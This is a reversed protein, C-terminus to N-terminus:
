GKQKHFFSMDKVREKQFFHLFILRGIRVKSAWDGPNGRKDPQNAQGVRCSLVSGRKKKLFKKKMLIREGERNIEKKKEKKKKHHLCNSQASASRANMFAASCIGFSQSFFQRRTSSEIHNNLGCGHVRLLSSRSMHEYNQLHKAQKGM